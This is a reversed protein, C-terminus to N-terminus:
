ETEGLVQKIDSDSLRARRRLEFPPTSTSSLCCLFVEQDKWLKPFAKPEKWTTLHIAGVLTNEIECTLTIRSLRRKDFPYGLPVFIQLARDGKLRHGGFMQHYPRELDDKLKQFGYIRKKKANAPLINEAKESVIWIAGDRTIGADRVEPLHYGTKEWADAPTIPRGGPDKLLAIRRRATRARLRQTLLGDGLLNWM